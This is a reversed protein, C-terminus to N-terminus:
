FKRAERDYRSWWGRSWFSGHIRDCVGPAVPTDDQLLEVLAPIASAANSRREGLECAAQAREYADESTLAVTLEEMSPTSREQMSPGAYAVNHMLCAHLLFYGSLLTLSAISRRKM